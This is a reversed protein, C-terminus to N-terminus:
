CFVATKIAVLYSGHCLDLYPAKKLCFIVSIKRIERRFCINHTSM